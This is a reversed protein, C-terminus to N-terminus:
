PLQDENRKPNSHKPNRKIVRHLFGQEIRLIQERDPFKAPVPRNGEVDLAGLPKASDPSDGSDFNTIAPASGLVSCATVEPPARVLGESLTM